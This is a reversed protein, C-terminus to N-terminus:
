DINCMMDWYDKEPPENTETNVKHDSCDPLLGM